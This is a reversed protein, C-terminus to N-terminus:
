EEQKLTLNMKKLESIVEQAAKEGMGDLTLLEERTKKILKAVTKIGAKTLGNKAREPINLNEIKIKKAEQEDAAKKNQKSQEEEQEGVSKQLDEEGFLSSFVSFHNVLIEASKKLAEEPELVGNTQIELKLKEFDTRKGVRMNEVEIKVKKVPSYFADLPLAGVGLKENERAEIPEYGIGKEIKAEIELEATSKTLTAIHEKPSTLEVESTLKFDKAVVEKEGKAKLIIIQPEDSFCKFNLKKLNVLIMVVDELVGSLASFEHPAGKIKVETIAAGELSSLLVRRLANGVTIGYGPYLGEVEFYGTNEEKKILKPSIPLPISM